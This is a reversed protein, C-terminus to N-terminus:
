RNQRGGFAAILLGIVITIIVALVIIDWFSAFTGLGVITENGATYAEDGYRYTYTVNWDSNNIGLSDGSTFSIRGTSSVTYNTSPIATASTKNTIASVSFSNFGPSSAGAVVEGTETVTTLVENAVSGSNAKRIIDTDRLEQIVVLGLILFVGAVVLAIIAPGMSSVQGKCSLGKM